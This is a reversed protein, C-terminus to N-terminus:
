GAIFYICDNVGSRIQLMFRNNCSHIRQIVNSDSTIEDENHHCKVYWCSLEHEHFWFKLFQCTYLETEFSNLVKESLIPVFTTARFIDAKEPEQVPPYRSIVLTLLEKLFTSFEGANGTM